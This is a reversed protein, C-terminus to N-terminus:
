RQAHVVRHTIDMLLMARVPKLINALVMGSTYQKHGEFEHRRGAETHSPGDLHNSRPLETLSSHFTIQRSFSISHRPVTGRREKQADRVHALVRLITDM